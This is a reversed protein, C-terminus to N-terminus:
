RGHEAADDDVPEILDLAVDLTEPPSTFEVWGMLIPAVGPGQDVSPAPGRYIGEHRAPSAM